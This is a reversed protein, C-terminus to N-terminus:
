RSYNKYLGKEEAELQEIQKIVDPKYFFMYNRINPRAINLKEKKCQCTKSTIFWFMLYGYFKVVKNLLEYLPQLKISLSTIFKSYYNAIGLRKLKRLM